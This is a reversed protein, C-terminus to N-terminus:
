VTAPKPRLLAALAHRDVKGNRNRPLEPLAIADDPIMSRPLREACVRKVELLSPGKSQGVALFVVLRATMADGTVLAASERVSPHHLVAAEVEGLEIRNGRIKVMNDRRGLFYYAGDPGQHVRDGTPYPGAARRPQGWYGPFVTPGEVMLEGEEGAPAEVGDSGKAWVRDGCVAHGIPISTADAPITGLAHAVCVNTETPGYLNWMALDPWAERLRRLQKMPFPEGAFLLLRLSDPSTALLGGHNMMLTIASPVSYWVTIREDRIFRVLHEAAYAAGEPVLCVTAGVSFAAYLDLVSLDFHFPAHNSFRDAPTVAFASVTWEVFALANAHTICVGKPRGTSGSTYLIYALDEPGIAPITLPAASVAAFASEAFSEQALVFTGALEDGLVAAADARAVVARVACDEMVTRARAPPSLVDVPVYAAGLRLVAQMTAVAPGGKPLWIAVRDGAGVGAGALIRAIRNAMADLEAYTLDGDASHVAVATPRELASRSVLTGLM